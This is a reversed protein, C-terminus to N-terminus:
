CSGIWVLEDRVQSTHVLSRVVTYALNSKARTLWTVGAETLQRFIGFNTYGLDYLLLAGAVVAEQIRPWFRQDHAKPDHEYWIQRPLRSCLDLLATMRGALPHGERERLLGVKRLLADLTSGDVALVQRYRERAWAIEPPVPRARQDWRVHMQ